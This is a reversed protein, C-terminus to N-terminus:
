LSIRVSYLRISLCDLGGILWVLNIAAGRLRMSSHQMAEEEQVFSHFLRCLTMM